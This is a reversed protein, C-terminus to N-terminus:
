LDLPRLVILAGDATSPRWHSFWKNSWAVFSIQSLLLRSQPNTPEMSSKTMRSSGLGGFARTELVLACGVGTSGDANPGTLHSLTM